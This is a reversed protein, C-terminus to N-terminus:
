HKFFDTSEGKRILGIVEEMDCIADFMGEAHDNQLAFEQLKDLYQMAEAISVASRPTPSEYEHKINNVKAVSSSVTDDVLKMTCQEDSDVAAYSELTIEQPIDMGADRLQDFLDKDETFSNIDADPEATETDQATAKKNHFGVLEFCHTITSEKVKKWSKKLLFMADLVTPNYEEKKDVATLLSTLLQRRYHMKLNQIVGQKMPQLQATAIPPLFVLNVSKLNTIRPHAPCKDIIIAIKRKKKQYLEDVNHAWAEFIDSTMWATKNAEYQTPLSKVNALCQPKKSKGIVLLPLKESGDMNACVMATLRENSRKGESFDERKFTLSHNPLRRYLLGTENANFIDCPEYVSLLQRISTELWYQMMESMETAGARAVAHFTINHRMKFGVLWGDTCIFNPFGIKKALYRAKEKCIPGSVPINMARAAKYWTLLAEEVEPMAAERMRKRAPAVSQNQFQELVMGKNKMITCLTSPHMGWEKAIDTKSKFGRNEVEAIFQVKEAISLTKWRRATTEVTASRASTTEGKTAPKLFCAECCYKSGPRAGKVCGQGYCQPSDEEAATHFQRVRKFKLEDITPKQEFQQRKEPEKRAYLEPFSSQSNTDTDISNTKWSESQKFMRQKRLSTFSLRICQKFRCKQRQKNQGGFKTKDLCFDCKGCDNVVQCPGCQGCRKPRRQKRKALRVYKKKLKILGSYKNVDSGFQVCQKFRCKQRLRNQGGFKKKDLCFYCKGCDTVVRCPGCQGCRKAHWSALRVCQKLRCKQRLKNQGGYKKRDLCFDCKRCDNVVQCPGCQGCRKSQRVATGTAKHAEQKSTFSTSTKTKKKKIQKRTEERTSTKTKKKIQKITEERKFKRKQREIQMSFRLKKRKRTKKLMKQSAKETDDKDGDPEKERGSEQEAPDKGEQIEKDFTQADPNTEILASCPPCAYRKMCESTEKELGICDGHYWVECYDCCIMFRTMDTSWCVGCHRPEEAEDNSTENEEKDRINMMSLLGAEKAKRWPLYHFSIAIEDQQSSTGESYSM